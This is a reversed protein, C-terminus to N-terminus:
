MSGYVWPLWWGWRVCVMVDLGLMERGM